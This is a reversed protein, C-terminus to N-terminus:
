FFTRVEVWTTIGNHEPQQNGGGTSHNASVFVNPTSNYTKTFHVDQSCIKNSNLEVTILSQM